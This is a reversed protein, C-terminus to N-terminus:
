NRGAFGEYDDQTIRLPAVSDVHETLGVWHSRVIRIMNRGAMTQIVMRAATEPSLNSHDQVLMCAYELAWTLCNAPVSYAVDGGEAKLEPIERM